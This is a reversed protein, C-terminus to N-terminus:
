RNHNRVRNPRCGSRFNNDSSGDNVAVTVTSTITGDVLNDNVGTVTM